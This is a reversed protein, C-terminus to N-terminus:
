EVIAVTPLPIKLLKMLVKIQVSWGGWALSMDCDEYQSATNNDRRCFIKMAM